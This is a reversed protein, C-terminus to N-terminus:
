VDEQIVMLYCLGLLNVNRKTAENESSTINALTTNSTNFAVDYQMSSKMGFTM